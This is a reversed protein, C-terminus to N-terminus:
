TVTEKLKLDVLLKILNTFPKLYKTDKYFSSLSLILYPTLM